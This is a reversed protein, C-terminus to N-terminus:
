KAKESFLGEGIPDNVILPYRSGDAWWLPGSMCEQGKAKASECVKEYTWQQVKTRNFILENIALNRQGIKSNYNTVGEITRINEIVIAAIGMLIIFNFISLGVNLKIWSTNIVRYTKGHEDTLTLNSM